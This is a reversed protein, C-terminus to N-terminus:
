KKVDSDDFLKFELRSAAASNREFIWSENDPNFQLRHSHYKELSKKHAISVLGELTGAKQAEVLAKYLVHETEADLASTAEDLFVVRPKHFLIRAFALRQQEGVSLVSKWPEVANIGGKSELRQVVHWLRCTRLIALVTRRERPAKSGSVPTKPFTVQAHLSGLPMYPTQPLFMIESTEPVELRGRGWMWLGAFARILTSKGCGSPGVILLSGESPYGARCLRFSLGDCILQQAHPTHLTLNDASLLTDQSALALTKRIKETSVKRKRTFRTKNPCCLRIGSADVSRPTLVQRKGHVIDMRDQLDALRLSVAHIRAYDKINEVVTSLAHRVIGFAMGAQGIVGLGIDGDFFSQALVASPIIMTVWGYGNQFGVLAASLWVRTNAARVLGSLAAECGALECAGGRYLAIAESNERVRTLRFRLDETCEIVAGEARTLRASFMGLSVGTGLACYALLFGLLSPSITYLVGSFCALSLSQRVVEVSANAVLQTYAAVDDVIRQAPDLDPDAARLHYHAANSLLDCLMQETQWKKWSLTVHHQAFVRLAVVPAAISIVILYRKVGAYFGQADKEALATNFDRTIYSFYITLANEAVLLAATLGGVLWAKVRDQSHLWFPSAVALVLSHM